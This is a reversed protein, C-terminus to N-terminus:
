ILGFEIDNKALEQLAKEREDDRVKMYQFLDKAKVRRHRGVTHFVIKDTELLKILHPRSVNLLDAAQQTSLEADHPILHFGHGNQILRLVDLFTEAIAHTLVIQAPKGEKDVLALSNNSNPDDVISALVQRLQSAAEVDIENPIHDAFAMSKAM